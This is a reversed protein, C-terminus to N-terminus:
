YGLAEKKNIFFHIGHSCEDWRDEDWADPYVMSGVRYRFDPDFRSVAEEFEENETESTAGTISIVRAFQCRCKRGSASSRAAEEPIYLKALGPITDNGRIVRVKKYGIFAGEDPCTMPVYPINGCRRFRSNLFLMTTIRTEINSFSCDYFNCSFFQCDEDFACDVFQVNHFICDIFMVERFNVGEFTTNTFCCLKHIVNNVTSEKISSDEVMLGTFMNDAIIATDVACATFTANNLQSTSLTAANDLKFDVFTCGSGFIKLIAPSYDKLGFVVNRLGSNYSKDM